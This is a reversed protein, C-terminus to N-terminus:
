VIEEVPPLFQCEWSSRNKRLFLFQCEWSSRNKWPLCFNVNGHPVIRGCSCFNVNRQPVIRGCSCFNVNRQPVIKERRPFFQCETSSRNKGETSFISMGNLFSKKGGHFFNFHKKM